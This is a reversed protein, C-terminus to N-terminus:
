SGFGPTKPRGRKKRPSFHDDLLDPGAVAVAVEVVEDSAGLAALRERDIREVVLFAEGRCLLLSPADGLDQVGVLVTVV